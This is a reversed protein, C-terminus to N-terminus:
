KRRRVATSIAYVCLYMVMAIGVGFLFAGIWEAYDEIGLIVESSRSVNDHVSVLELNNQDYRVALIFNAGNPATIVNGNLALSNGEAITFSVSSETTGEINKVYLTHSGFEISDFAACGNADTVANQPTSHLELDLNGIVKNEADVMKVTCKVSAATTETASASTENEKATAATEPTETSPVTSKTEDSKAVTTPEEKTTAQATTVKETTEEITTPAVTSKTLEETTPAVTPKTPEETTSEITPNSEPESPKPANITFNQSTRKLEENRDGGKRFEIAITNEGDQNVYDTNEFTEGHITIRTSGSEADYDKGEM